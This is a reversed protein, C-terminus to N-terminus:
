SSSKQFLSKIADHNLHIVTPKGKPCDYPSSTKLLEKVMQKAEIISWGRKQSRAYSSLTFALKKQRMKSAPGKELVEAFEHLLSSVMNEEIDPSLADVIIAEDGFSRLEIGMNQIDEKFRELIEKEQPTFDLTLPILLSQMTPSTESTFRDFLIRAYVGELDILFMGTYPPPSSPLSFISSGHAILYNEFMGIVQLEEESFEFSSVVEEQKEQFVLPASFEFSGGIPEFPEKKEALPPLSRSGFGNMVGKRIEKLIVEEERLRIEKKTPHVNVDIWEPPLSLHLVFTPHLKSSLRTGYGEYIARSIQPCSVSRGNVYLYQGLRNSRADLPSGLFGSIECRNNAQTIPMAGKLFEKGLLTQIREELSESPAHITEKGDVVFRLHIEPHSLGFKTLFKTIDSISARQSKQFKKRAPVNYFLLRSEVTTGRTRASPKVSLIKGGAATLGDGSDERETATVIGVKSIAAISALAEGRFGMTIVENLDEASTIKSTAHRELSLILDDRAMGKGDDIVRILSFGGKEVEVTIKTSKADFANEVLEKVVSAPNEIVEGAAIKNITLDSLIQIPMLEGQSSREPEKIITM